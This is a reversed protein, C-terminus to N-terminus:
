LQLYLDAARSKEKYLRLAHFIFIWVIVAPISIRWFRWFQCDSPRTTPHDPPRTTPHDSVCDEIHPVFDIDFRSINTIPLQTLSSWNQTLWRYKEWCCGCCCCCYCYRLNVKSTRSIALPQQNHVVISFQHAHALLSTIITRIALCRVFYHNIPKPSYIVCTCMIELYDVIWNNSEEIALKMLHNVISMCEPLLFIVLLHYSYWGPYLLLLTFIRTQSLNHSCLDVSQNCKQLSFVILVCESGRSLWNKMCHTM